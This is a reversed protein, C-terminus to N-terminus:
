FIFHISIIFAFEYENRARAEGIPEFGIPKFKPEQNHKASPKLKGKPRSYEEDTSSSEDEDSEDTGSSSMM